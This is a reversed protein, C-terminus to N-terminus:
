TVLLLTSYVGHSAIAGRIIIEVLEVDISKQMWLAHWNKKKEGHFEQTRKKRGNKKAENM